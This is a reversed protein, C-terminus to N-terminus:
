FAVAGWICCQGLCYNKGFAEDGCFLLMQWAIKAQKPDLLGLMGAFSEPACGLIHPAIDLATSGLM